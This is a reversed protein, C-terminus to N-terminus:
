FLGATMQKFIDMGGDKKLASSLQLDKMKFVKSSVLDLAKERHSVFTGYTSRLYESEKFLGEVVYTFFGKQSKVFSETDM